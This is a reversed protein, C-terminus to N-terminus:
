SVQWAQVPRGILRAAWERGFRDLELVEEFSDPAMLVKEKDAHNLVSEVLPVIELIGIERALFKGVAVENAANFVTSAGSGFQLCARALGVAPFRKDDVAEFTLQGLEKLNLRPSPTAMRGPWALVYAIPTRMDPAGMQALMSGDCYEIMSHVISQPHVVVDIQNLEVPFLHFAEILELGKNMMTASDITLKDGMSWNPHKLADEVRAAAMKELPWERFPGGSATLTIRSIDAAHDPSLVQFVANHESDVPLIQTHYRDVERMFLDGASVLCEKNALAICNGQRVAALTPALGAAGVIAAMVIEVPRSAADELAAPGAAIEIQTDSLSDKLKGYLTPDAIVAVKADFERAQTALLDVNRSATLAEVKFRDRNRGVLDLTNQGISGTSGLISVRRPLAGPEFQVLSSSLQQITDAKSVVGDVM